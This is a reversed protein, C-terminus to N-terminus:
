RAPLSRRISRRTARPLQRRRDSRRRARRQLRRSTTVRDECASTVDVAYGATWWRTTSRGSSTELPVRAPVPWAHAKCRHQQIRRWEGNASAIPTAAGAAPTTEVTPAAAQWQSPRPSSPRSPGLPTPSAASAIPAIPDQVLCSHGLCVASRARRRVCRPRPGNRIAIPDVVFAFVLARRASLPLANEESGNTWVEGDSPSRM